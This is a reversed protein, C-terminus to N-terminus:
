YTGKERDAFTQFRFGRDRLREMLRAFDDPLNLFVFQWTVISEFVDRDFM